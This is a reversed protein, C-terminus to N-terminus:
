GLPHLFDGLVNYAAHHEAHAALRDYGEAPRLATARCEDSLLEVAVARMEEACLRWHEADDLLM